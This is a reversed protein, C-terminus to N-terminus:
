VRTKGPSGTYGLSNLGRAAAPRGSSAQPTPGGGRAQSRSIALAADNPLVPRNARPRATSSAGGGGGGGISSGFAVRSTGFGVGLNMRATGFPASFFSKAAQESQFKQPPVGQLLNRRAIRARELEKQRQQEAEIKERLIEAEMAKVYEDFDVYGSGDRDIDDFRKRLIANTLQKAPKHKEEARVKTCFEKFDMRNDGDADFEAMDERAEQEAMGHLEEATLLGKLPSNAIADALYGFQSRVPTVITDEFWSAVGRPRPTEM